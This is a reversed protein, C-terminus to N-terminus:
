VDGESIRKAWATLFIGLFVLIAAGIIDGKMASDKATFFLSSIEQRFVVAVYVLILLIPSRLIYGLSIAVFSAWVFSLGLLVGSSFADKALYPLLILTFCICLGVWIWKNDRRQLRRLERRWSVQVRDAYWRLLRLSLEGLRSLVSHIM